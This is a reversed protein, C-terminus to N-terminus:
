HVVSPLIPDDADYEGEPYCAGATQEFSLKIKPLAVKVEPHDPDEALMGAPGLKAGTLFPLHLTAADVLLDLHFVTSPADRAPQGVNPVGQGLGAVVAAVATNAIQPTPVGGTGGTVTDVAPSSARPATLWFQVAIDPFDWWAGDHRATRHDVNVTGGFSISAPPTFRPPNATLNASFRAMGSVVVGEDDFSTELDQVFLASILEHLPQVIAASGLVYPTIVDLLAFSGPM